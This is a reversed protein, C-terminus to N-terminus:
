KGNNHFPTSIFLDENDNNFINPDEVLKIKKSSEKKEEKRNYLSEKSEEFKKIIKVKIKRVPHILKM